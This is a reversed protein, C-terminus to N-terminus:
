RISRGSQGDFLYLREAPFLVGLTEGIRVGQERNALVRWSLGGARLFLMQTGRAFDPEIMDVEGRLHLDDSEWAAAKGPVAPPALRGHEPRVGM